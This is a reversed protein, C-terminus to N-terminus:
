VDCWGPPCEDPLDGPEDPDDDWRRLAVYEGQGGDVHVAAAFDDELDLPSPADDPPRRGDQPRHQRRETEIRRQRRHSMERMSTKM